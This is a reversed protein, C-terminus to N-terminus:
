PWVVVVRRVTDDIDPPEDDPGYESDERAQDEAFQEPTMFTERWESHYLSEIVDGSWTDFGNGEPDQALVVPLTQDMTSLKAILDAVTPLEYESM